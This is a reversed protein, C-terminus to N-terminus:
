PCLMSTIHPKVFPNSTYTLWRGSVRGTLPWRWLERPGELTHWGCRRNLIKTVTSHSLVGWTVFWHVYREVDHGFVPTTLPIRDLDNYNCSYIIFPTHAIKSNTGTPKVRRCSAQFRIPSLKYSMKSKGMGLDVIYRHYLANGRMWWSSLCRCFLKVAVGHTCKMSAPSLELMYINPLHLPIILFKYM